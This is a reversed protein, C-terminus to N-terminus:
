VGLIKRFSAIDEELDVDSLAPLQFVKYAELEKLAEKSVNEHSWTKDLFVAKLTEDNIGNVFNFGIAYYGGDLAPGIIAAHNELEQFALDMTEVSNDYCDSGMIVVKSYGLGKLEMFATYMKLGLDHTEIQLKKTYAEGGWEDNPSVYFAYYLFKEVSLGDAINRTHDVLFNYVILANENGITAALRTKVKGLEPNKIFIILADM